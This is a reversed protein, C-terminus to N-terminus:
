VKANANASANAAAKGLAFELDIDVDDGGDEEGDASEWGEGFFIDFDAGGFRKPRHATTFEGPVGRWLICDREMDVRKQV